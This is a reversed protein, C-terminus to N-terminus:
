ATPDGPARAAWDHGCAPCHWSPNDARVECGGLWIKGARAEEMMEPGPLGYCIPVVRGGGCAPCRLRQHTRM